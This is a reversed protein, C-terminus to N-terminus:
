KKRPQWPIESAGLEHGMKRALVFLYDSLRNLYVLINPSVEEMENMRVCVREARRCVCRAIHAVSVQPHGGPLIFFKMPELETEMSDIAKELQQVDERSIQQLYDPEKGDEAAVWAGIVFIIEQIQQFMQQRATNVPQDRLLGLHANLEDLAGVAEVRLHGKSVRIGGLLSTKGEDGKKTYIKMTDSM